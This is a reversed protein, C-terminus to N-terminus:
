DVSNADFEIQRGRGLRGLASRPQALLRQLVASVAAQSRGRAQPPFETIQMATPQAVDPLMTRHRRLMVLAAGLADPTAHAPNLVIVDTKGPERVITLRVSTQPAGPFTSQPFVDPLLVIVPRGGYQAIGPSASPLVIAFLALLVAAWAPRRNARTIKMHAFGLEPTFYLAAIRVLM